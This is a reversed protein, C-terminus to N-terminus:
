SFKQPLNTVADYTQEDMIYFISVHHVLISYHSQLVLVLLMHPIPTTLLPPFFLSQLDLQSIVRLPTPPASPQVIPTQNM